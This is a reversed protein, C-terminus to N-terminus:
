AEGILSYKHTHIHTATQFTAIDDQAETYDYDYGSKYYTGVVNMVIEHKDHFLKSFYLDMVPSLYNDKDSSRGSQEIRTGDTTASIRQTSSRRRNLAGLSLKASLLYDDTKTHNFRLEALHQEYAYPSNEGSKQKDYAKGGITYALQEDLVRKHYDRYNINYKVGIQSRGHNYNFDVVNNGFGTTLANQTNLALSGGTQKAKTIVNIVAGLGMNAYRVPPQTYYDIKAIDDPPIVSLDVPTSPIGNILIKVAKGDIATVTQDIVQVKPLSELAALASGYRNKEDQTLKYERKDAFRKVMSATVTVEDLATTSEQLTVTGIDISTQLFLRGAYDSFGIASIGIGYNGQELKELTFAGNNDSVTFQKKLSDPQLVVWVHCGALPEGGSDAM